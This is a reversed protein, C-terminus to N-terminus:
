GGGLSEVVAEKQGGLELESHYKLWSEKGCLVLDCYVGIRAVLTQEELLSAASLKRARQKIRAVKSARAGKALRHAKAMTANRELRLEAVEDAMKYILKAKKLAHEAQGKVRFKNRPGDTKHAFKNGERAFKKAIFRMAEDEPWEGEGADQEYENYAERFERLREYHAESYAKAKVRRGNPEM